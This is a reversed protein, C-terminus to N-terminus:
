HGPEDPPNPAALRARLGAAPITRAADADFAGGECFVDIRKAHPACAELMPGTVLDVYEDVNTDEPVVHAGLFTTEPTFQRALALARTEDAVTLGYGSKIEVTTTG